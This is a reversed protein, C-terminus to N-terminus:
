YIIDHGVSAFNPGGVLFIPDYKTALFDNM